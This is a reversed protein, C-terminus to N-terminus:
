LNTVRKSCTVTITVTTTVPKDNTIAITVTKVGKTRKPETITEITTVM